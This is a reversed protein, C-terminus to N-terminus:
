EWGSEFELCVREVQANGKEDRRLEVHVHEGAKTPMELGTVSSHVPWRRHGRDVLVCTLVRKFEDISPISRLARFMTGGSFIVDDVIVLSSKANGIPAELRAEGDAIMSVLQTRALGFRQMEERIGHALAFGRENLGVLTLPDGTTLEAIQHAMRMLIREIRKRDLLIEFSESQLELM